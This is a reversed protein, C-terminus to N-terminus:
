SSSDKGNSNGKSSIPTLVLDFGLSNAWSILIFLRPSKEGREWAALQNADTGIRDVLKRRSIRRECRYEYLALCIPENSKKSCHHRFPLGLKKKQFWFSQLTIGLRSAIEAGPRGEAWLRSLEERQDETVLRRM